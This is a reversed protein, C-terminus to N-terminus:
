QQQGEYPKGQPPPWEGRIQMQREERKIALEDAEARGSGKGALYGVLAGIVTTMIDTIVAFFATTQKDNDGFLLSLIAGITLILLVSAVMIAFVTVIFDTTSGGSPPRPILDRHEEEETM